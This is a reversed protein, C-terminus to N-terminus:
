SCAHLDWQGLRRDGLRIDLGHETHQACGGQADTGLHFGKFLCDGGIGSDAVRDADIASGAAEVDAEGRRTYALAVLDDGRREAKHGGGVARDELPGFWDEGVDVGVGQVDVGLRTSALMVSRVFAIM